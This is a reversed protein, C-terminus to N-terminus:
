GFGSPILGRLDLMIGVSLASACSHISVGVIASIFDSISSYFALLIMLILIRQSGADAAESIYSSFIAVNSFPLGSYNSASIFYKLFAISLVLVVGM